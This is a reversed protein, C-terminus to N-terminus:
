PGCNTLLAMDSDFIRTDIEGLPECCKEIVYAVIEDKNEFRDYLTSKPIGSEEALM